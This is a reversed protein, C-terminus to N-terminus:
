MLFHNFAYGIVLVQPVTVAIMWLATKKGLNAWLLGIETYDTVLGGILFAFTNGFAGTQRYLEFALPATGESCVELVTAIFMTMLLGFLTPGLFRQFANEPVFASALSALVIGLLIWFLIMQALEYAGNAIGKVDNAVSKLTLRYHRFRRAMDHRISFNSDVSDSFRNHEIWGKEDLVQFVLGTVVSVFLAALIILLGQWGFFGILLVTVPLNAWPSALLFSIVAPGSAGKKHLEMALALVGHSCASALLGCAASYFITRKQPRALFKSIYAKPVYHDIVGGLLFGLALAWWIIRLYDFLAHRFRTLVPAFFSAALLIVLLLSILLLANRYWPQTQTAGRHDCHSYECRHEVRERGQDVSLYTVNGGFPM